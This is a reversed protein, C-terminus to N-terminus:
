EEEETGTGTLILSNGLVTQKWLDLDNTTAEITRQIYRSSEHDLRPSDLLARKVSERADRQEDPDLWGYLLQLDRLHEAM